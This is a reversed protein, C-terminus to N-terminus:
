AARARVCRCPARVDHVVLMCEKCVYWDGAARDACSCELFQEDVLCACKKCHGVVVAQLPPAANSARLIAEWAIRNEDTREREAAEARRRQREQEAKRLKALVAQPDHPAAAASALRTPAARGTATHDVSQLREFPPRFDEDIVQAVSRGRSCLHFYRRIRLLPTPTSPGLFPMSRSALVIDRPMGWMSWADQLDGETFEGGAMERRRLAEAKATAEADDRRRKEAVAEAEDDEKARKKARAASVRREVEVAV